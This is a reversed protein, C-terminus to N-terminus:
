EEAPIVHQLQGYPVYGVQNEGPNEYLFIGKEGEEVYDCEQVRLDGISDYWEVKLDIVYQEM